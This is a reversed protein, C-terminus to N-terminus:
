LIIPRRRALRSLLPNLSIGFKGVPIRPLLKGLVRIEASKIPKLAKECVSYAAYAAALGLFGILIVHVREIYFAELFYISAILIVSNAVVLTASVIQSIFLGPRFLYFIAKRDGMSIKGFISIILLAAIFFWLVAKSAYGLWRMQNYQNCTATFDDNLNKERCINDLKIKELFEKSTPDVNQSNTLAMIVANEYKKEYGHSVLFSSILGIVPIATSFFILLIWAKLTNM